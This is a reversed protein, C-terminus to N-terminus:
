GHIAAGKEAAAIRARAGDIIRALLDPYDIGAYGAMRAMMGDARWEPHANVDILRPVGNADDRFDFRAYDRLGLRDFMLRCTEDLRARLDDPVEAPKLRLRQYYPSKEDTKSEHTMIRPLDEPLDGYDVTLPPLCRLGGAEGLVAVSFEDGPLLEEAVVWLVGTDATLASLSAEADEPAQVVSGTSIGTSGSGSNPKLLVPVREPPRPRNGRSLRIVEQAPVAVAHARAVTNVAGKDHCLALCAADAGALPHGLMEVLAPVHLQLAPQNRFGANCFNLVLDFSGQRLAEPLNEHDDLITFRCSSLRGLADQLRAADRHDHEAMRGGPNYPYPLRPDALIVAIDLPM